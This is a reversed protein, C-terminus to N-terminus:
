HTSLINWQKRLKRVTFVSIVSYFIFWSALWVVLRLGYKDTDYHQWLAEAVKGDTLGLDYYHKLHEQIDEDPALFLCLLYLLRQNDPFKRQPKHQNNRGMIM